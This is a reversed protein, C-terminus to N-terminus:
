IVASASLSRLRPCRGPSEAELYEGHTVARDSAAERQARVQERRVAEQMGGGHNGEGVGQAAVAADGMKRIARFTERGDLQLAIEQPRQEFASERALRLRRVQTAGRLDPVGHHAVFRSPLPERQEAAGLHDQALLRAPVQWSRTFRAQIRTALELM